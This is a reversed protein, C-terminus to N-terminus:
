PINSRVALVLCFSDMLIEPTVAPWQVDCVIPENM